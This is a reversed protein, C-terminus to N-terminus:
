GAAHVVLWSRLVSPQVDVVRAFDDVSPWSPEATRVQPGNEALHLDDGCAM